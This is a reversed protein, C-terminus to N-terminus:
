ENGGEIPAPTPEPQTPPAKGTLRWKMYEMLITRAEEKSIIQKDVASFVDSTVYEIEQSGFHLSVKAAIGDYGSNDLVKTWVDEFIRKITRRLSAVKMEYTARVAEATAKTTFETNPSINGGTAAYFEKDIQAIWADYGQTRQPVALKIDGKVNTCVRNGTPTMENVKGAMTAIGDDSLGEFVWLENGFSFKEFGQKMSARVSKRIEYLSPVPIPEDDGNSIAEPTAILGMIFGKGFPETGTINTRFHLFEGWKITKSGYSATLLIHYQRYLPVDKSIPLAKNIAQIPINEFGGDGIYWFSNGFAVIQQAIMLVTADTDNVKNWYDIVDKASKGGLVLTYKEDQTTFIGTSIIEQAMQLVAQQVVPDENLITAQDKFSTSLQSGSSQDVQGMVISGSQKIESKENPEGFIVEKLKSYRSM